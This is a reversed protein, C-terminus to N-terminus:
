PCGQQQKLSLLKEYDDPRDIDMAAEPADVACVESAHRAIIKKAGADGTLDFLESFMECAFLAPVGLTNGYRSAVIPKKSTRFGNVLATITDVNVFPQDCLMFVVASLEPQGGLLKNLGSKISTSIGDQWEHNVVIEIPSGDIEAMTAPANPGLVVVVKGCASVVASDAARRLLSRGEFQLLQKPKGFRTSGGAALIVIGIKETDM